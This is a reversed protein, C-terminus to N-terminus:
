SPSPAGSSVLETGNHALLNKCLGSHMQTYKLVSFGYMFIIVIKLTLELTQILVQTVNM